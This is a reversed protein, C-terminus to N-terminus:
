TFITNLIGKPKILYSQKCLLLCMFEHSVIAFSGFVNSCFESLLEPSLKLFSNTIVANDKFLCLSQLIQSGPMCMNQTTVQILFLCFYFAELLNLQYDILRDFPSVKPDKRFNKPYLAGVVVVFYDRKQEDTWGQPGHESYTKRLAAVFVTQCQNWETASGHRGCLAKKQETDGLKKSLGVLMMGHGAALIVDIKECLTKTLLLLLPIDTCFAVLKILIHHASANRIIEELGFEGSCVTNIIDLYVPTPSLAILLEAVRSGYTDCSLPRFKEALKELLSSAESETIKTHKKSSTATNNEPQLVHFIVVATLLAQLNFSFIWELLSM